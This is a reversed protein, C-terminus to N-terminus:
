NFSGTISTEALRSLGERIHRAWLGGIGEVSQLDAATAALLSQLTGFSGVLRHIQHFQLRPVRMLVRYGRPTMPTDLAEITGPYGLVRALTTLDLLDADTVRDLAVLVNDMAATGIPEPGALYDRVILQRAIDNDGVLEELQLALQRGDTGLELVDQEIEISVRRVMELRQVVTLADRLTM